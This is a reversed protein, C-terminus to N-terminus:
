EVPMFCFSASDWAKPSGTSMSIRSSGVEARSGEARSTTSSRTRLGSGGALRDNEGAVDQRLDLGDGIAHGDHPVPRSICMSSM